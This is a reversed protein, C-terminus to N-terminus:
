SPSPLALVQPAEADRHVVFPQPVHLVLSTGVGPLSDLKLAGGAGRAREAMAALGDHGAPTRGSDFGVGNDRIELWLGAEDARARIWVRSAHAHRVINQLAERLVHSLARVALPTPRLEPPVDVAVELAVQPAAGGFEEVHMRIAAAVPSEAALLSTDPRLAQRALRLAESSRHIQQALDDLLERMGDRDGDLAARASAASAAAAALDHVVGDHLERAPELRQLEARRDASLDHVTGIMRIRKGREDRQTAGRVRHRVYAGDAHRLRADLEFRGDGGPGAPGGDRFRDHDAPHVLLAFWAHTTRPVEDAGYGLLELLPDSWFANGSCLDLDFMGDGSAALALRYREGVQADESTRPAPEEAVGPPRRARLFAVAGAALPRVPPVPRHALSPHAYGASM